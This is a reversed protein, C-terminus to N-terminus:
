SSNNQIFRNVWLRIEGGLLLLDKREPLFLINELLGNGPALIALLVHEIVARGKCCSQGMESMENGAGYLVDNGAVLGHLTVPHLAAKAPVAMAQRHFVEDFLLQPEVGLSVDLGITHGLEVLGATVAHQAVDVLPLLGDGAQAAPDIELVVVLGHVGVVHLGDPPHQFTQPLLPEEVLAVVDQGITGATGGDKGVVLQCQTAVLIDMVRGDRDAELHRLGAGVAIVGVHGIAGGVPQGPGGRGPSQGGVEAEGHPRVDVVHLHGVTVLAVNQRFAAKAGVVLVRGGASNQPPLLTTLQHAGAVLGQEGIKGVQLLGGVAGVAVRGGDAGEPHEVCVEHGGLVSGTDDMRGGAKTLVVVQHELAGANGGDAGDIVLAPESGLHGVVLAAEDLVTVLVDDVAELALAAQHLTVLNEMGIGEAPTTRAGQNVTGNTAPEYLYLINTMLHYGGVLFDGPLRVVDFVTAKTLPQLSGSVPGNTTVAVPSVGNRHPLTRVTAFGM